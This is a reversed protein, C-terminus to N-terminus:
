LYFFIVPTKCFKSNWLAGSNKNSKPIFKFFYDDWPESKMFIKRDFIRELKFTKGYIGM